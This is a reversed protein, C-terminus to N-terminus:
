DNGAGHLQDPAANPSNANALVSRTAVSEQKRREGSYAQAVINSSSSFFIIIGYLLPCGFIHM